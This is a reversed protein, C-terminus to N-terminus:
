ECRLVKRPMIHDVSLVVLTVPKKNLCILGETMISSSINCFIELGSNRTHHWPVTESLYLEQSFNMM